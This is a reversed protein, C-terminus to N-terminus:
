ITRRIILTHDEEHDMLALVRRTTVGTNGVGLQGDIYGLSDGAGVCGVFNGPFNGIHTFLCAYRLSDGSYVGVGLDPNRLAWLDHYRTSRYRVLKYVGYPVCSKFPQNDRWAQEVSHFKRGNIHITGFRGIDPIDSHIEQTIIM